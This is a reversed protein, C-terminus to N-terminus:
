DPDYLSDNDRYKLRKIERRDRLNKGRRGKRDEYYDEDWDDFRPRNKGM